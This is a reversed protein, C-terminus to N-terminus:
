PQLLRRRPRTPLVPFRTTASYRRWPRRKREKSDKSTYVRLASQLAEGAHLEKRLPAGGSEPKGVVVVDEDVEVECHIRSIHLDELIIDAASGGITMTGGDVMVFFHGQDDGDIVLLRKVM